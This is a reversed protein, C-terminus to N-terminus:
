RRTSAPHSATSPRRRARERPARSAAKWATERPVPPSTRTTGLFPPSGPSPRHESPEVTRQVADAPDLLLDRLDVRGVLDLARHVQRDALLSDRDPDALGQARLIHHEPEVPTVREVEGLAAIKAPH